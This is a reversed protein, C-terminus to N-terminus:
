MDIPTYVKKFNYMIKNEKAEKYFFFFGRFYKKTFM